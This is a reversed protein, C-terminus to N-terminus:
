THLYCDCVSSFLSVEVSIISGPKHRFPKSPDHQNLTHLVPNPEYSFPIGSVAEFEFHLNDLLFRVSVSAHLAEPGVEPTLCLILTSSNVTCREEVQDSCSM